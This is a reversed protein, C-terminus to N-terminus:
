GSKVRGGGSGGTQKDWLWFKMCVHVCVSTGSVCRLPNRHSKPLLCFWLRLGQPPLGEQAGAEREPVRAEM